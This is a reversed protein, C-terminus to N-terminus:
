NIFLFYLSNSMVLNTKTRGVNQGICCACDKDLVLDQISLHRFFPTALNVSSSVFTKDLPRLKETLGPNVSFESNNNGKLNNKQSM